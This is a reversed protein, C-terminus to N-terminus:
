RLLFVENQNALSVTVRDDAVPQLTGLRSCALDKNIIQWTKRIVYWAAWIPFKPHRKKRNAIFGNVIKM